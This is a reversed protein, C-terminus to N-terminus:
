KLKSKKDEGIGRSIQGLQVSLEQDRTWLIQFPRVESTPNTKDSRRGYTDTTDFYDDM